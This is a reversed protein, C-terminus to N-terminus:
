PEANAWIKMSEPRQDMLDVNNKSKKNGDEM